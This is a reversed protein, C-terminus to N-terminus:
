TFSMEGVTTASSKLKRLSNLWQIDKQIIQNTKLAWSDTFLHFALGSETTQFCISDIGASGTEM